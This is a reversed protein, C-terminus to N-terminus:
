MAIPKHFKLAARVLQNLQGYLHRLERDIKRDACHFGKLRALEVHFKKVQKLTLNSTRTHPKGGIIKRLLLPFSQRQPSLARGL